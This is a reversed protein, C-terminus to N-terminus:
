KTSLAVRLAQWAPKPNLHADLPTGAGYGTFFGPIWSYQDEFGWINFTRCNTAALCTSLLDSFYNAEAVLATTNVPLAIAYDVETMAVSLRAAAATAMQQSLFASRAPSQISHLQLGVGDIPVGARRLSVALSVLSRTRVGNGNFDYDNLYLRANPDARHAYTFALNIYSPGIWKLWPSPALGTGSPGIPENVVDWQSCKSRFHGVVKAIHNSLAALAQQKTFTASTLWNPNFLNWVLNHCRVSQHHLKAFAVIVDARTFDFVGPAPETAAFKMSNEPEVMNFETGLVCAYAPDTALASDNVASGVLVGRATALKGLPPTGLVSSPTCTPSTLKAQQGRAASIPTLATVILATTVLRVTRNVIM